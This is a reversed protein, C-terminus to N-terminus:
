YNRLDHLTLYSKHNINISDFLNKPHFHKNNCLSQRLEEIENDHNKICSFYKILIDNSSNGKM